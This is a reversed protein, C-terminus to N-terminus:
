ASQIQMDNIPRYDWESYKKFEEETLIDEAKNDSRVLKNRLTHLGTLGYNGELETAEIVEFNQEPQEKGIFDYVQNMGDYPDDVLNDYDVLM